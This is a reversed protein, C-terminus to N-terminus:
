SIEEEYKLLNIIDSTIGNVKAQKFLYDLKAQNAKIQYIYFDILDKEANEFNKNNNRLEERTNIINKILDIKTKDKLAQEKVYNEEM